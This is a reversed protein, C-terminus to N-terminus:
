AHRVESIFLFYACCVTTTYLSHKCLLAEEFYKLFVISYMAM